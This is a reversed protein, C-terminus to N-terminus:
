KGLVQAMLRKLCYAEALHTAFFTVTFSLVFPVPRADFVKLMVVVYAVFFLVKATFAKLMQPLLAAKDRAWTRTTLTWSAASVAVPGAMGLLVARGDPGDVFASVSVAATVAVGIVWWVANM